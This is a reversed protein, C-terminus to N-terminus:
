DRLRLGLLRARELDGGPPRRRARIRRADACPPTEPEPEPAAVAVPADQRSGSDAVLAAAAAPAAVALVPVAAGFPPAEQPRTEQPTSAFLEFSPETVAASPAAAAQMAMMPLAVRLRALARLVFGLAVIVLGGSLLVSGAIVSAWGREMEISPYGSVIAYLGIASLIAGIALVIIAM